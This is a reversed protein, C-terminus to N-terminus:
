YDRVTVKSPKNGEMIRKKNMELVDYCLLKLEKNMGNKFETSTVGMFMEIGDIYKSKNFLSIKEIGLKTIAIFSTYDYKSNYGAKKYVTGNASKLEKFKYKAFQVGIKMDDVARCELIQANTNTFIILILLSIKIKNKLVNM